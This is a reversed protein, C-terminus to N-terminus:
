SRGDAGAQNQVAQPSLTAKVHTLPRPSYNLFLIGCFESKLTWLHPKPPVRGQSNM